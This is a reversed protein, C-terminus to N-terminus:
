PTPLTVPDEPHEENWMTVLEEGTKGINVRNEIEGRFAGPTNLANRIAADLRHSIDFRGDLSVKPLYTGLGEIKAGRGELTFFIIADRLEKLVMTIEGENLGTRGSIFKVLELLSATRGLIVRPSYVQIAEIRAAM